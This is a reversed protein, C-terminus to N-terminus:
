VVLLLATVIALLSAVSGVVSSASGRAEEKLRKVEDATFIAPFRIKTSPDNRQAYEIYENMKPRFREALDALPKGDCQDEFCAEACGTIFQRDGPIHGDSDFLQCNINKAQAWPQIAATCKRSVIYQIQGSRKDRYEGMLTMCATALMM